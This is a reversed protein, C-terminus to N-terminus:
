LEELERQWLTGCADSPMSFAGRPSLSLSGVTAGDPLCSRKFQQNIFRRFFTKLWKLITADDYDGAFAIKAVRYIKKPSYGCRLAHYIFFDHLEYPGVLDETIQTMKDSTENTPLLEPSVPTEVIDILAKSLNINDCVCAYYRVIYRILTKPVSANVGYMSMHDGNYTAWGLALESLDGTGVVLGGVENAIDMLVQTRERAQANEFVVNHNNKDHGIDEFHQTVSKSIRVERFDTGLEECIIRANSRTRTTTGFCPMTVAVIDKRSKGLMDVAKVCVILALTSDLGGSVGIVLKKSFTHEMRRKLGQAQISMILECRESLEASNEPVFSLKNFKRSLPMDESKISIETLEGDCSECNGRTRREFAIRGCDIDTILMENEFPVSECLVRGNECVLSHGAFVEDATSEGEGANCLVYGACLDASESKAFDRRRSKACVIEPTSTLNVIVTAGTACLERAYQRDSGIGDGVVFGIKIDENESVSLVLSQSLDDIGSSLQKRRSDASPVYGLINGSQMVVACSFVSGKHKIPAGVAVVADTDSLASATEEVAKKAGCLLTDNYFLDGCTAGTVCLEPFVVLKAGQAVAKKAEEIIANKNYECDCLKIEPRCVAVKLFGDKM